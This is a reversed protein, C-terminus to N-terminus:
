FLFFKGPLGSLGSNGKPGPLGAPCIGCDDGKPGTSVHTFFKLLRYWHSSVM